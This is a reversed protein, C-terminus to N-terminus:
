VTAIGRRLRDLNFREKEIDEEVNVTLRRVEALMKGM